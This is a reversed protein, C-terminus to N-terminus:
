WSEVDTVDTKAGCHCSVIVSDGIATPTFSYTFCPHFSIAKKAWFAWRSSQCVHESTWRKAAEAEPENMKFEYKM